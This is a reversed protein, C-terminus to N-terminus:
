NICISNSYILSTILKYSPCPWQKLLYTIVPKNKQNYIKVAWSQRNVNNTNVGISVNGRDRRLVVQWSFHKCSLILDSVSHLVSKLVFLVCNKFQELSLAMSYLSQKLSHLGSVVEEGSITVVVPVDQPKMQVRSCNFHWPSHRNRGKWSSHSLSSHVLSHSCSVSTHLFIQSSLPLAQSQIM